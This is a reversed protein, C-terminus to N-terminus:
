IAFIILQFMKRLAFRMEECRVLCCGAYRWPLWSVKSGLLEEKEEETRQRSRASVGLRLPKQLFVCRLCVFSITSQYRISSMGNCSMFLKSHDAHSVEGLIGTALSPWTFTLLSGRSFLLISRTTVTPLPNGDWITYIISYILVIMVFCWWFLITEVCRCMFIQGAASIRACYMQLSLLEWSKWDLQMVEFIHDRVWKTCFGWSLVGKGGVQVRTGVPQPAQLWSAHSQFQAHSAHTIQYFSESKLDSSELFSVFFKSDHKLFIYQSAHLSAFM